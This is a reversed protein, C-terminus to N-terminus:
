NAKWLKSIETPLDHICHILESAKAQWDLGASRVKSTGVPQDSKTDSRSAKAIIEQMGTIDKRMHVPLHAISCQNM